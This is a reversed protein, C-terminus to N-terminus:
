DSPGDSRKKRETAAEADKQTRYSHLDTSGHRVGSRGAAEVLWAILRGGLSPPAVRLLADALRGLRRYGGPARVLAALVAVGVGWARAKARSAKGPPRPAEPHVRDFLRRSAGSVFARPVRNAACLAPRLHDVELAPDIVVDYGAQWLRYGFESDEGYAFRADFGGVHQWAQRHMSFCAALHQWRFEPPQAYYTKLARQNASRGYAAAYPVDPFVDRTLALVIRDARGSHAALHAAVFDDKIGLDDDCRILYDGQAANFGLSLADAVGQAKQNVIVTLPLRGSWDSLLGVSGDLVGDVVIVVEWSSSCRQSALRPLLGALRHEGQHSPVVVSATPASM